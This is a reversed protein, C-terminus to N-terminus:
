FRMVEYGEFDTEERGMWNFAVFQTEAECEVAGVGLDYFVLCVSPTLFPLLVDQAAIGDAFDLQGCAARLLMAEGEGWEGGSHHQLFDSHSILCGRYCGFAVKRSAVKRSQLWFSSLCGGIRM